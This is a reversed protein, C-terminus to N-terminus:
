LQCSLGLSCSIHNIRLISQWEKYGALPVTLYDKFDFIQTYYYLSTNLNIRNFLAYSLQLGASAHLNFRYYPKKSYFRENLSSSSTIIDRYYFSEKLIKSTKFGLYTNISFKRSIMIKYVFVCVLNYVFFSSEFKIPYSLYIPLPEYKVQYCFKDYGLSLKIGFNKSYSYQVSTNIHQTLPYSTQKYQNSVDTENKFQQFNVGGSVGLEWRKFKQENQSVSDRLLCRHKQSNASFTQLFADHSYAKASVLLFNFAFFVLLYVTRLKM